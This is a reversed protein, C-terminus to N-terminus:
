ANLSRVYWVSPCSLQVTLINLDEEDPCDKLVMAIGTLEPRVSSPQGFVSVSQPPLRGGISVYAAGMSGNKKLSGDTAAVLGSLSYAPGAPGLM